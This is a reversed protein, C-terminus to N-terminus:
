PFSVLAAVAAYGPLGLCSVAILNFLNLGVGGLTGSVLLLAAAWFGRRTWRFFRSQPTHSLSYVTLGVALIATLGLLYWREASM